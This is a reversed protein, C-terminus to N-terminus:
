NKAEKSRNIAKMLNANDKEMQEFDKLLKEQLAKDDLNQNVGEAYYKFFEKYPTAGGILIWKLDVDPFYHNWSPTIQRIVKNNNIFITAVILIMIMSLFVIFFIIAQAIGLMDYIPTKFIGLYNILPLSIFFLVVWKSAIGNLPAQNYLLKKKANPAKYNTITELIKKLGYIEESM